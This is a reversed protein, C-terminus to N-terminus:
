NIKISFLIIKVIYKRLILKPCNQVTEPLKPCNRATEPLGQVFGLVYHGFAWGPCLTLLHEKKRRVSQSMSDNDTIM